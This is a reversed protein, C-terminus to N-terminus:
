MAQPFLAAVSLRKAPGFVTSAVLVDAELEAPLVVGALRVEFGVVDSVGDDVVREGLEPLRPFKDDGDGDDVDFRIGAGESCIDVGIPAMTPPTTPPSATIQRVM